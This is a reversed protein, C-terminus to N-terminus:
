TKRKNAVWHKENRCRKRSRLKPLSNLTAGGDGDGEVQGGNQGVPGTNAHDSQLVGIHCLLENVSGFENMVAYAMVVGESDLYGICPLGDQELVICTSNDPIVIRNDSEGSDSRMPQDSVSNVVEMLEVDSQFPFSSSTGCASPSGYLECTTNAIVDRIIVGVMDTLDSDGPEDAPSPEDMPDCLGFSGAADNIHDPYVLEQDLDDTGTAEGAQSFTMVDVPNQEQQDLDDQGTAKHTQTSTM